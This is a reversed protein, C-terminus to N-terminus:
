DVFSNSGDFLKEITSDENEFVVYIKDGKSIVSKYEYGDVEDIADYLNQITLDKDEDLKELIDYTEYDMSGLRPNSIGKGKSSNIVMRKEERKYYSKIAGFGDGLQWQSRAKWQYAGSINSFRYFSDKYEDIYDKFCHLSDYFRNLNYLSKGRIYKMSADSGLDLDIAMNAYKLSSEFDEADYADKSKTEYERYKEVLKEEEGYVQKIKDEPSVIFKTGCSCTEVGDEVFKGCTPCFPM